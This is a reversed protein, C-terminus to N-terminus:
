CPSLKTQDTSQNTARPSSRSRGSQESKADGVVCVRGAHRMALTAAHQELNITYPRLRLVITRSLPATRSWREKGLLVSLAEVRRALPDGSARRTQTKKWAREFKLAARQSPFGSVTLLLAWPRRGATHKAGGVLEGNHQRLRRAPDTTFGVYTSRSSASRILYCFYM